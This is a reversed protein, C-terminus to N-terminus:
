QERLISMDRMRSDHVVGIYAFEATQGTMFFLILRFGM